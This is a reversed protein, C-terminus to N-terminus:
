GSPLTFDLDRLLRLTTRALGLAAATLV